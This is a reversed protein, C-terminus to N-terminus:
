SAIQWQLLKGANPPIFQTHLDIDSGYYHPVKWEERVLEISGENLPLGYFRAGFESTFAELKDLAGANEFVEALMPLAVPVTFQGCKGHSCVKHATPHPASDSGFFFKSNGSTAAEILADRDNFHKPVPMCMHHPAVGSGIVDNLTDVLHHATITGAVNAPMQEILEVANETSVHEFVIKLDPHDEVVDEFIPLFADERGTTLTRPADIEGHLLLKMNCDRMAKFVDQIQPSYFDRLGNESNTTVGLPYVKGAIAGAKCAAEVIEPTTSDQIAITMLPEFGRGQPLWELITIFENRYWIVDKATLVANTLNPMAIARGCYPILHKLVLHLTPQIRFHHHFDDIWRLPLKKVM